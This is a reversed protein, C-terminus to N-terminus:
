KIKGAFVMGSYIMFHEFLIWSESRGESAREGSALYGQGPRLGRRLLPLAQQQRRLRGRRVGARQARGRGGLQAPDVHLRHPAM